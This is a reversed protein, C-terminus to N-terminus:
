FDKGGFRLQQLAHSEPYPATLALTHTVDGAKVHHM